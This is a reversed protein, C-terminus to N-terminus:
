TAESYKGHVHILHFEQQCLDLPTNLLVLRKLCYHNYNLLEHQAYVFLTLLMRVLHELHQYM